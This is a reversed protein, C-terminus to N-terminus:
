ESGEAAQPAGKAVQLRVLQLGVAFLDNMSRQHANCRDLNGVRSGSSGDTRPYGGPIREAARRRGRLSARSIQPEVLRDLQDSRRDGTTHRM